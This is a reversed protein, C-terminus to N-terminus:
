YYRQIYDNIPKQQIPSTTTMLRTARLAELKGLLNSCEILFCLYPVAAEYETVLGRWLRYQRIAVSVTYRLLAFGQRTIRRAQVARSRPYGAHNGYLTDLIIEGFGQQRYQRALGKRSSRHHHYIIAAPAYAVRCRCRLQVRWSLDVDEGTFLAPNFGGVHELLTRRYSANATYIHPLFGDDDSWFNKLPLSSDAFIEVTTRDPHEYALIEGAVGGIQDDAYPQVLERLWDPHAICDADTFAIIDSQSHAIGTNRAAAPGRQLSHLLRVPYQQAITTTEDTSGNEVVIIEYSDRPYNLSLLSELCRGLTRAGNYVPVIISVIPLNDMM